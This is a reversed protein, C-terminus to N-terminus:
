RRAAASLMFADIPLPPHAAEDRPLLRLRDGELVLTTNPPIVHVQGAEVQRGDRVEVVRLKTAAALAATLLSEHSPSLHQVVVVALDVDAPLAGLLRRLAEVGGASAGIAVLTTTPSVTTNPDGAKEGSAPGLERVPHSADCSKMLEAPWADAHHARM